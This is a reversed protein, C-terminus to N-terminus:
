PVLIPTFSSFLSVLSSRYSHAVPFFSRPCFRADETQQTEGGTM